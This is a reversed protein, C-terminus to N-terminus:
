FVFLRVNEDDSGFLDIDDDDDDDDAAAAAAPAAGGSPGYSGVDKKQGPFSCNTSFSCLPCNLCPPLVVISRKRIDSKLRNLPGGSWDLQINM